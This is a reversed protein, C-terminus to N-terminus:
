LTPRGRRVAVDEEGLVPSFYNCQGGLLYAHSIYCYITVPPPSRCSLDRERINQIFTKVCEGTGPQEPKCGGHFDNMAPNLLAECDFGISPLFTLAAQQACWSPMGNDCLLVALGRPWGQATDYGEEPVGQGAARAPVHLYRPGLDQRLTLRDMAYDDSEALWGCDPPVQTIFDAM